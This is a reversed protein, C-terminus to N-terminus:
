DLAQGTRRIEGDDLDVAGRERQQAEILFDARDIEVPVAVPVGEDDYHEQTYYAPPYVEVSLDDGFFFGEIPDQAPTIGEFGMIVDQNLAATTEIAEMTYDFPATVDFPVIRNWGWEGLGPLNKAGQLLVAGVLVALFVSGAPNETAKRAAARAVPAAKKGAVIAVPVVM